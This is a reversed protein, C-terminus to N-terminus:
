VACSKRVIRVSRAAALEYIREDGISQPPLEKTTDVMTAKRGKGALENAAEGAQLEAVEKRKIQFGGLELLTKEVGTGDTEFFPGVAGENGYVALNRDLNGTSDMLADDQDNDAFKSRSCRHRHFVVSGYILTALFTLFTSPPGAGM